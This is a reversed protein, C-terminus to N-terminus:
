VKRALVTTEHRFNRAVGSADNFTVDALAARVQREADAPSTARVRKRTIIVEFLPNGAPLGLSRLLTNRQEVNYTNEAVYKAVDAAYQKWAAQDFLYGSPMTPRQTM